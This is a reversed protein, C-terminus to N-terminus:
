VRRQSGVLADPVMVTTGIMVGYETSPSLKEWDTRSWYCMM